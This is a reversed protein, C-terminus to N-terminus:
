RRRASRPRPIIASPSAGQLGEETARERIQEMVQRLASAQVLRGGYPVLGFRQAESWHGSRIAQSAAQQAGKYRNLETRAREYPVNLSSPAFPLNLASFLQRRYADPSSQRLRKMSNTIGVFHDVAGFEPIWSALIKPMVDSRKARLSGSVPDYSVDPYLDPTASLVNIGSASAVSSILPNVSSVFGALTFDNAFSRFPNISKWDVGTINGNRDPHGMFFLYSYQEPLGSDWDAMEQEAFRSLIAARMPHDVPYSLLYRFLHKTFAYFPFAQKVLYREVPSMGDLDIFVKHALTIAEDRALGRAEGSLMTAVKYVQSVHSEFHSLARAKDGVAEVFHKGLSKGVAVQYLTDTDLGHLDGTLEVPVGEGRVIKSAKVLQRLAGPERGIMFTMGGLSVHAIHRPGTLVSFKYLHLSKDWLGKVGIRSDAQNMIGYRGHLADYIHRPILYREGTALKVMGKLGYHAPDFDAWKARIENQVDTGLSAYPQREQGQMAEKIGAEVETNTKAFKMMYNKIFYETGEQRLLQVGADVLGVVVDQMYPEFNLTRDHYVEPSYLKDPLPRTSLVRDFRDAPVHHLWVPDYGERILDMWSSTSSQLIDAFEKEGVIHILDRFSTSNAVAKLMSDLQAGHFQMRVQDTTQQRMQDVVLPQYEASPTKILNEHFARSRENLISTSRALRNDARELRQKATDLLRAAYGHSRQRGSLGVLEDRIQGMWDRLKLGSPFLSYANRSFERTLQTAALRASRIDNRGLADQLRGFLGNEGSIRALSKYLASYQTPHAGVDEFFGPFSQMPHLHRFREAVDQIAASVTASGVPGEPRANFQEDTETYHRVKGQAGSLQQERFAVAREATDRAVRADAVRKTQNGFKRYTKAVESDATYALTKGNPLRISTIEGAAEGQSRLDDAIRRANQILVHDAPSLSPDDPHYREMKRAIDARRQPTLTEMARKLLAKGHLGQVDDGVLGKLVYEQWAIARDRLARTQVSFPRM